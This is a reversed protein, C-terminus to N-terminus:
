VKKGISTFMATVLQQASEEWTLWSLGDSTPIRNESFLILWEELANALEYPQQANFYFANTGAVERFVPLDRAIIPLQNQAAEILPLGFGEGESAALLVTSTSYIKELFEDSIGNLWYFYDSNADCESLQKSLDDVNWGRKGVIVLNISLKKNWLLKFAELVQAYGKRPEVTGVMLFTTRQKITSLIEEANKPLGDSPLSQQIDAGLHFSNVKLDDARKSSFSQLWENVETATARSICILGTSLEAIIELWKEFMQGLGDPWWEPHHVLLIDYVVFFIEVGLNRFQKLSAQTSPALHATLDLGLFIDNCSVDVIDDTINKETFKKGYKPLTKSIFRSAQRYTKGDWYIPVVQYPHPPNSLLQILISRVVRQIGSKADRQVLESIDVFLTKEVSSLNKAVCNAIQALELSTKNKIEDVRSLELILHQYPEQLKRKNERSSARETLLESYMKEFSQIAQKASKDWSFKAAQVPANELLLTRFSDDTIGRELIQYIDDVSYPNFLAEQHGIVEPISSTNSGVTAAGCSLAELAPLGFGEHTSPFVFLKCLDYLTVLDPDDIYNTLILEHNELGCNRAYQRINASIDQPLRGTIVLQHKLRITRDLKSYAELLREVNKRQDFGGPAYMIFPLQIGYQLLINQNNSTARGPRSFSADVAASINIVKSSDIGLQSIAEQRSSESIALLCDCRKLSEIKRLYWNEVAKVSLYSDKNILPILDYLTVSTKFDTPTLHHCVSTAVDDGWGEFLSSIHVIDPNLSAVFSERILESAKTLWLHHTHLEAIQAPVSFVVIRDRPVLGSFAQRIRPVSEPFRDNLLIWVEHEKANRVLALAFAMSYRGIGRFRSESQCPQLDIVIRM